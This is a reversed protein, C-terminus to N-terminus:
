FDRPNINPSYFRHTIRETRDHELELNIKRARHCMSNDIHVVFDVAAKKQRNLSKQKLLSLLVQELFYGHNFKRDKPWANLIFSQIGTVFITTMVKSTGIGTCVCPIVTTRTRAYIACAPYVYRFWSHDETAIEAFNAMQHRRLLDLLLRSQTVREKESHAIAFQPGM